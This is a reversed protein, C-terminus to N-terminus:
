GRAALVADKLARVELRLLQLERRLAVSDRRRMCEAEDDVVSLRGEPQRMAVEASETSAKAALQEFKEAGRRELEHLGPDFSFERRDCDTDTGAKPKGDGRVVRLEPGRTQSPTRSLTERAASDAGGHRNRRRRADPTSPQLAALLPSAAHRRGGNTTSPSLLNKSTPPTMWCEEESDESGSCTDESRASLECSSAIRLGDEFFVSFVNRSSPNPFTPYTPASTSTGSPPTFTKTVIRPRLFSHRPLFDCVREPSASAATIAQPQRSIDRDISESAFLDAGGDMPIYSRLDLRDRPVATKRVTELGEDSSQDDSLEEEEELLEELGPRTDPLAWNWRSERRQPLATSSTMDGVWDIAVIPSELVIDHVLLGLVNFVLARGAQTGIAILAEGGGYLDCPARATEEGDM